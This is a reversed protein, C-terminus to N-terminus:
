GFLPEGLPEHPQRSHRYFDGLQLSLYRGGRALFYVFRLKELIRGPQFLFKRFIAYLVLLNVITWLIDWPNLSLM